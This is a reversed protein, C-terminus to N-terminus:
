APLGRSNTVGVRVDSRATPLEVPLRHKTPHACVTGARLLQQAGATLLTAATLERGAARVQLPPHQLMGAPRPLCGWGGVCAQVQPLTPENISFKQLSTPTCQGVNAQIQAALQM